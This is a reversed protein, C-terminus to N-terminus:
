IFFLLKNTFVLLEFAEKGPTFDRLDKLSVHFIPFPTLSPKAATPDTGFGLEQARSLNGGFLSWVINLNDQTDQQTVVKGNKFLTNLKLKFRSDAKNTSPLSQDIQAASTKDALPSVLLVLNSSVITITLFTLPLSSRINM